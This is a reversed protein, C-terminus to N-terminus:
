ATTTETQVNPLEGEQAFADPYLLKVAALAVAEQINPNLFELVDDLTVEPNFKDLMGWVVVPFKASTVQVWDKGKKIDLHIVDEIKAIAKYTPCLKWVKPASGDEADLVLTFYPLSKAKVVSMESM